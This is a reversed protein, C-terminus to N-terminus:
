APPPPTDNADAEAREAAALESARREELMHVANARQYTTIVWDVLWMAFYAFGIAPLYRLMADGPDLDKRLTALLTPSWLVLSVILTGGFRGEPTM